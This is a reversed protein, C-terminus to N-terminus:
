YGIKQLIGFDLPFIRNCKTSPVRAISVETDPRCFCTMVGGSRCVLHKVSLHVDSDTTSFRAAMNRDSQRGAALSVLM